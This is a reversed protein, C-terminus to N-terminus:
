ISGNFRMKGRSVRQLPFAILIKSLLEIVAIIRNTLNANNFTKRAQILECM